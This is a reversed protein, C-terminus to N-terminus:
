EKNANFPNQWYWQQSSIDLLDSTDNSFVTNGLYKQCDVCESFNIYGLSILHKFLVRIDQNYFLNENPFEIKRVVFDDSLFKVYQGKEMYIAKDQWDYYNKFDVQIGGGGSLIHILTHQVIFYVKNIDPLLKEVM